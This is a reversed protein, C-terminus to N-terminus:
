HAGKRALVTFITKFAILLDLSPSLNRIYYIDYLLKKKSAAVSAAYGFNVQAWGSIGPKVNLREVFQPVEKILLNMYYRTEPRPGILSMSGTLVNILQPLEDIRFQRLLKGLPTIKADDKKSWGTKDFSSHSSKGYMTRFKYMVFVRGKLGVRKDLYLVSGTSTLKIAVAVCLMLPITLLLLAVSFLIDLLRKVPPYWSVARDYDVSFDFPFGFHSAIYPEIDPPISFVTRRKARFAFFVQSMERYSINPSAILVKDIKYRRSIKDIDDIPGLLPADSLRSGVTENKCSIFGVIKYAKPHDSILKAVTEAAYKGAGIVLLRPGSFNKKGFATFVKNLRSM